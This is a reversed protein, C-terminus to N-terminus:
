SKYLDAIGHSANESEDSSLKRNVSCKCIKVSNINDMQPPPIMLSCYSVTESTSPTSTWDVLFKTCM